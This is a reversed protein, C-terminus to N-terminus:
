KAEPSKDMIEILSLEFILAQNPGIKGRGAVGYALEGPIVVKWSKVTSDFVTGDLFTGHYDVKVRDEKAPSDGTGEVLIEYQVGNPLKKVGPKAGNEAMYAETAKGNEDSQMKVKAMARKEVLKGFSTMMAQVQEDSMDLEKGASAQNMGEYMKELTLQAGQQEMKKMMQYGAVFSKQDPGEIAAKMGKILMEKDVEQGQLMTSQMLKFGAPEDQAFLSCPLAVSFALGFIIQFSRSRFM